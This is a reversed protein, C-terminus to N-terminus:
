DDSHGWRQNEFNQRRKELQTKRQPSSCQEHKWEMKGM